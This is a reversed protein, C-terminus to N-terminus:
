YVEGNYAWPDVIFVVSKKHENIQNELEEFTECSHIWNDKTPKECFVCPREFLPTSSKQEISIGTLIKVKEFCRHCIVM